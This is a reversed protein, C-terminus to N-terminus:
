SLLRVFRFVRLRRLSFGSVIKKAVGEPDSKLDRGVSAAFAVDEGALGLHALLARVVQRM